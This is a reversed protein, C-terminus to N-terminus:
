CLIATWLVCGASHGTPLALGALGRGAQAEGPEGLVPQRGSGLLM